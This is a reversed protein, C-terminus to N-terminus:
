YTQRISKGNVAPLRAQSVLLRQQVPMFHDLGSRTGGLNRRRRKRGGDFRELERMAASSVKGPDIWLQWLLILYEGVRLRNGRTAEDGKAGIKLKDKRKM